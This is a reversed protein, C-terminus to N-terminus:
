PSFLLDFRHCRSNIGERSSFHPKSIIVYGIHTQITHTFDVIFFQKTASKRKSTTHLVPLRDLALLVTLSILSIISNSKDLRCVFNYVLNHIVSKCCQTNTIACTASTSEYKSLDIGDRPLGRM